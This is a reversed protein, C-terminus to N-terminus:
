TIRWAPMTIWYKTGNRVYDDGQKEAKCRMGAVDSGM